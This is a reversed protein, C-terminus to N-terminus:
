GNSEWISLTPYVKKKLYVYARVDDRGSLELTPYVKKKLYVYAQQHRAHSVHTTPYVKKKLYVYATRPRYIVTLLNSIGEKEPLCVGQLSVSRFMNTPYVKKKLYVYATYCAFTQGGNINTSASHFLGEAYPGGVAGIQINNNNM